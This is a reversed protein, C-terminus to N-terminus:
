AQSKLFKLFVSFTAQVFNVESSLNKKGCVTLGTATNNIAIALMIFM